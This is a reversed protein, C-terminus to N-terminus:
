RDRKEGVTNTAMATIPYDEFLGEPYLEEYDGKLWKDTSFASIGKGTGFWRIPSKGIAVKVVNNTLISTNETHYTTAGTKGDVPITAVTAGKPSAIWLDQGNSNVELAFGKLDQTPVKKNQNHLTWKEGNFSVIGQETVFWKTNDNDVIVSSFKKVATGTDAFIPSKLSDNPQCIGKDINESQTMNGYRDPTERSKVAGLFIMAIVILSGATLNQRSFIRNNM